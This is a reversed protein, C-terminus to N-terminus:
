KLRRLINRISGIFLINKGLINKRLKMKIKEKNTKWSADFHHISYTNETILCKRTNYDKPSFYDKPFIILGQINQKENNQILGNEILVPTNLLPCAIINLKGNEKEFPIFDYSKLLKGIMKQKPIAGFGLGTAVNKGDEFGAYAENILLPDLPKVLEVDTDMYIGGNYYVIFLRAYDTVFAWKKNNYAQTTYPHAFVDFNNENWEIIKYDPCFKTWSKLCDKVSRPKQKGGFWCYHIIKPITNM